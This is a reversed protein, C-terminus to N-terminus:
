AVVSLSVEQGLAASAQWIASTWSWSLFNLDQQLVVHNLKLQRYFVTLASFLRRFLTKHRFKGRTESFFGRIVKNPATNQIM